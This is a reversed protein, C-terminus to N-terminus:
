EAVSVSNFIIHVRVGFCTDSFWLLVVAKQSGLFELQWTVGQIQWTRTKSDEQYKEHSNTKGQHNM